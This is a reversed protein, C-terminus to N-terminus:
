AATPDKPILLVKLEEEVKARKAELDALEARALELMEEDTEVELMEKSDQIGQEIARFERYKAVVEELDRHQKTVKPYRQQDALLEPDGLQKSLEEYKEEISDLKDFM